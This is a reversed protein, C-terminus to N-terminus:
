GTHGRSKKEIQAAHPSEQVRDALEDMTGDLSDASQDSSINEDFQTNLSEVAHKGASKVPIESRFTMTGAAGLVAMGVMM